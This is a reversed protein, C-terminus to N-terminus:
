CRRRAYSSASATRTWGSAAERLEDLLPNGKVAAGGPKRAPASKVRAMPKVAPRKKGGRAKGEGGNKEGQNRIESEVRIENEGRIKKAAKKGAATKVAKGTKATKRM